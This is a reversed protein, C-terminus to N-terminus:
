SKGSAFQMEINKKTKEASWHEFHGAQLMATGQPTPPRNITRGEIWKVQPKKKFQEEEQM